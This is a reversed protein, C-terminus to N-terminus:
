VSRREAMRGCCAGWTGSIGQLDPLRRWLIPYQLGIQRSQKAILAGENYLCGMLAVDAGSNKVKTLIASFDVTKGSQYSEKVM